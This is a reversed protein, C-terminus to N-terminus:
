EHRNINPKNNIVYLFFINALMIIATGIFVNQHPFSNYVFGSLIVTFILRLYSFPALLTLPAFSYAIFIVTINTVALLAIVILAYLEEIQIMQFSNVVIPLSIISSIGMFYFTQLMYHQSSTQKRCIVEYVSWLLIAGISSAVGIININDYHPQLIIFVGILNVLILFITGKKDKEKLIYKAMLFVWLPGTYGLATAENIAIHQLSFIWLYMAILNTIARLLYLFIEKKTLYFDIPHKIFKLYLFSILSGLFVQIFFVQIIPLNSTTKIILLSLTPFLLCNLTKFLIGILYNINM